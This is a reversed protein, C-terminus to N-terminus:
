PLPAARAGVCRRGSVAAAIRDVHDVRAREPDDVVERDAAQRLVDNRRPVQLHEVDRVVGAVAQRRDIRACAFVARVDRDVVRVVHVEGGVPAVRDDDGLAKLRSSKRSAWLKRSCWESVTGHLPTSWM